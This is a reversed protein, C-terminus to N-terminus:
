RFHLRDAMKVAECLTVIGPIVEERHFRESVRRMDRTKTPDDQLAGLEFGHDSLVVLTTAGDMAAMYEGLIEDAHLYMAEVAGGFKQQQALLEGSLGQARFLHGFLHSVSDTGEIYTLLLDPKEDAWLKLGIRRYSDATALAWKFHSVDDDFSFPRALEEPSVKIYGAVEQATVDSPRRVLPQIKAFLAAPYTVDKPDANADHGQPFLFHYCTHDSVMAGNVTEAPWTAWWGVSAVKRGRDSLMNWIAKVKRMGSTVPLSEGSPSVATFHGIGHQDPTKGTAVTTWIVPSLLPPL